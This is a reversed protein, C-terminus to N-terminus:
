FYDLVGRRFADAELDSFLYVIPVVTFWELDIDHDSPDEEDVMDFGDQLREDLGRM